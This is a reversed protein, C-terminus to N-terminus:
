LAHAVVCVLFVTARALRAACSFASRPFGAARWSASAHVRAVGRAALKRALGRAFERALAEAVLRCAAGKTVLGRAARKAALGAAAAETVLGCAVLAEAFTRRTAIAIGGYTRTAFAAGFCGAEVLGARRTDLLWAAHQALRLGFGGGKFALADGLHHRADAHARTAIRFGPDLGAADRHIAFHQRRGGDIHRLFIADGDVALRQGRAFARAQEHEVLRAAEDGRIVIGLAARGDEVRQRFVQRAEDGDAAEVDVGFAQQQQGIVAPESAHELQGRGAPQTAVAHAGIARGVLGLEVCKALADRDVADFIGPDLRMEIALLAGIAPDRHTQAFALVALDLAHELMEPQGHVAQDAQGVPRELEAVKFFAEDLFDARAHQHVLDARRERLFRAGIEVRRQDVARGQGVRWLWAALRAALGARHTAILFFGLAGALIARNCTGALVDGHQARRAVFGDLAAIFLGLAAADLAGRGGVAVAARHIDLADDRGRTRLGGALELARGVALRFARAICSAEGALAITGARRALTRARAAVGLVRALARVTTALLRAVGEHAVGARGLLGLVLWPAVLRASM